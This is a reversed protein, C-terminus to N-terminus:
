INNLESTFKNAVMRCIKVAKEKVVEIDTNAKLNLRHTDLGLAFCHMVFEGPYNRHANGVWIRLSPLRLEWATQKKDKQDRSYTTADNWTTNM